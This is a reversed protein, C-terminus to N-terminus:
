KNIKVKDLGWNLFWQILPDLPSFTQIIVNVRKLKLIYFIFSM